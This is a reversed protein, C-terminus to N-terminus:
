TQPHLSFIKTGQLQQKCCKFCIEADLRPLIGRKFSCKLCKTVFYNSSEIKKSKNM